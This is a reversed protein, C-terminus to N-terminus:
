VLQWLSQGEAILQVSRAINYPNDKHSQFNQHNNHECHKEILFIWLEPFACIISM